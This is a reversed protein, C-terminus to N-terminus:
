LPKVTELSLNEHFIQGLKFAASLEDQASLQYDVVGEPTEIGLRFNHQDEGEPGHLKMVENAWDLADNWATQLLLYVPQRYLHPVVEEAVQWLTKRQFQAYDIFDMVQEVRQEQQEATYEETVYVYGRGLRRVNEVNGRFGKNTVFNGGKFCVEVTHPVAKIKVIRKRIERLTVPAVKPRAADDSKRLEERARVRTDETAKDSAERDYAAEHAAAVELIYRALVKSM